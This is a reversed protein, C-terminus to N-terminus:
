DYYAQLAQNEYEVSVGWLEKCSRRAVAERHRAVYSGGPTTSSGGLFLLNLNSSDSAPKWRPLNLVGAPNPSGSRIFSGWRSQVEAILTSQSSTPTTLPTNFVLRIDDGHSVKGKCFSRDDKDYSLGLDFEALWYSGTNVSSSSLNLATQQIPCIWSEDTVMSSLITRGDENSNNAKYLRSAIITAASTPQLATLVDNTENAPFAHAFLSAVIACSEDKVNTFIVSKYGSPLAIDERVAEAFDIPILSGDVTPRLFESLPDLGPVNAPAFSPSTSTQLATQAALISDVSASRLCRLTTCNMSALEGIGNAIVPPLDGYALTASHIIARTFLPKAATIGLLTRVMEGGSSQGALTVLAKDGGFAPVNSQVYKLAVIVDKIAYNGKLGLRDLRMQGLVGLRYQVIVVIVQEQNALNAGDIDSSAGNFFSGGHIWFFVPLKPAGAVLASSPTYVSILSKTLFLCNESCNRGNQPCPPPLATGDYQRFNPYAVPDSLRLAGVPPRAYPVTFRAVAGNLVSTGSLVGGNMRVTPACSTVHPWFLFLSAIAGLLHGFTSGQSPSRRFTPPLSM